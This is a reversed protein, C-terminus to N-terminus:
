HHLRVGDQQMPAAAARSTDETCEKRHSRMRCDADGPSAARAKMFRKPERGLGGHACSSRRARTPGDAEARLYRASRARRSMSRHKLVVVGRRPAERERSDCLSSESRRRSVPGSVACRPLHSGDACRRSAREFGLKHATGATHADRAQEVHWVDAATRVDDVRAIRTRAMLHRM